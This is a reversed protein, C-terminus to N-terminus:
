GALEAPLDLIDALAFRLRDGLGAALFFRRRHLFGISCAHSRGDHRYHPVDIVALSAQEVPNSLRIHSGTFCAADRLVYARVLDGCPM